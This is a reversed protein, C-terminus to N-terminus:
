ELMYGRNLNWELYVVLLKTPTLVNTRRHQAKGKSESHISFGHLCFRCFYMKDKANSYQSGALRAFGKIFCYHYVSTSANNLREFKPIDMLAM